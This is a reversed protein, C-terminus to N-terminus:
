RLTQPIRQDMKGAVKHQINDMSQLAWYLVYTESTQEVATHM